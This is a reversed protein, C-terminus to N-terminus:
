SSRVVLGPPGELVAPTGDEGVRVSLAREGLRLGRVELRGLGPAQLPALHLEGRPAHPRLGLLASLLAVGSAAAWAQPRCAAPYPVPLRGGHAQEGAFLEPLRYDFAPAADLLGAVLSAAVEHHGDRALGALAIVTDHPWVTGGHYSLPGFRPSQASLTRLGFGSDMDPAGLRRAVALSEEPDLLGTGLLHGMNSAVSDVRRKDRDLAIAPYPGREDEVWFSARFRERLTSAYERWRDAGPRGFAELLEAGDLAAAYAYAQVECLAIPAEALRGDSWQVSDDSDKWGQNGLGHGSHDIYEIFGDGDPDAHEDLWALASEAAPLLRAVAETDAGWRWAEALLSVWLPTADVTGYYLPPLQLLGLDIPERRMEHLIKGPAEETEAEVARGQHRALTRLTGLALDTGLPLLMRATWLADRGFLTLFWPSGAAVFPDDGDALLLGELDDLGQEVLRTLRRDASSLEPRNWPAAPVSRFAAAGRPTDVTVHLVVDLTARPGLRLAWRLVEADADVETPPPEASVAARGTPAAWRLGEGGATAALASGVRGSKVADIPALDCGAEVVLDVEVAASASSVLRLTETMGDDTVRRHREVLLTPDPIPDGAGRVVALFRGQDAGVSQGRLPVPEAGDFRVVLRSLGRVDDRFLGHVGGDRMQGDAGSLALVPARVCSVLDHLYPQDAPNEQDATLPGPDPANTVSESLSVAGGQQCTRTVPTVSGGAAM